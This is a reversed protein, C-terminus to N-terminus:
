SKTQSTAERVAKALVQEIFNNLSRGDAEAMQELAAKLEPALRLAFAAKAGVKVAKM